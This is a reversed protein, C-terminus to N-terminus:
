KLMSYLYRFDLLKCAHHILCFFFAFFATLIKTFFFFQSKMCIVVPLPGMLYVKKKEFDANVEEVLENYKIEDLLEDDYMDKLDVLSRTKDRALAKLASVKDM